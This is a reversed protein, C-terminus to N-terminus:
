LNNYETKQTIGRRRFKTNRFTPVCFSLIYCECFLSLKIDLFIVFQVHTKSVAVHKQSRGAKCTKEENLLACFLM